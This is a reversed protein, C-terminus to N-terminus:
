RKPPDRMAGILALAVAVCIFLSVAAIVITALNLEASALAAVTLAGLVVLFVIGGVLIAIPREDM